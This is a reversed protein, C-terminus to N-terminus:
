GHSQTKAVHIVRREIHLHERGAFNIDRFHRGDLWFFRDLAAQRGLSDGAIDHHLYEILVAVTIFTALAAFGNSTSFLPLWGQLSRGGHEGSPFHFAETPETCCEPHLRLCDLKAINACGADRTRARKGADIWRFQALIAADHGNLAM